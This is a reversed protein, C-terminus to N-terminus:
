KNLLQAITIAVSAKGIPFEKGSDGFITKVMKDYPIGDSLDEVSPMTIWNNAVEKDIRASVIADFPEKLGKKRLSLIGTTEIGALGGVTPNQIIEYAAKWLDETFMTKGNITFLMPFLNANLNAISDHYASGKFLATIFAIIQFHRNIVAVTDEFNVGPETFDTPTDKPYALPSVAIAYNVLFYRLANLNGTGFQAELDAWTFDYTKKYTETKYLKISEGIAGQIYDLTHEIDTTTAKNNEDGALKAGKDTSVMVEMLFGLDSSLRYINEIFDDATQMEQLAKLTGPRYQEFNSQWENTMQHITQLLTDEIYTKLTPNKSIIEKAVKRGEHSENTQRSENVSATISSILQNEVKNDLPLLKHIESSATKFSNMTRIDNESIPQSAGLDYGQSIATRIRSIIQKLKLLTRTYPGNASFYQIFEEKDAGNLRGEVSIASKEKDTLQANLDNMAKTFLENITAAVGREGYAKKFACTKIHVFPTDNNIDPTNSEVPFKPFKYKKEKSKVIATTGM